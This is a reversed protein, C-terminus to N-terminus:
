ASRHQSFHHTIILCIFCLIRVSIHADQLGQEFLPKLQDMPMDLLMVPVGSWVRFASERISANDSAVCQFLASSLENWSQGRSLSDRALEALTDALKNRVAPAQENALQNILM